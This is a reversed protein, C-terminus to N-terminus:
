NLKHTRPEGFGLVWFNYGHLHWPHMERNEPSMTNANQLIVDVTSIFDLKYIANGSTANVNRPVSYIDYNAFDYNEPPSTVILLSNDVAWPGNDVIYDRDDFLKMFKILYFYCIQGEIVFPDRLSRLRRSLREVSFDNDAVLM